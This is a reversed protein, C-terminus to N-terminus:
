AINKNILIFTSLPTKNSTSLDRGYLTTFIVENEVMRSKELFYSQEENRNMELRRPSFIM